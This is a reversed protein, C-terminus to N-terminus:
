PSGPLKYPGREIPLHGITFSVGSVPLTPGGIGHSQRFAQLNAPHNAAFDIARQRTMGPPVIGGSADPRALFTGVFDRISQLWAPNANPNPNPVPQTTWMPPQAPILKPTFVPRRRLISM